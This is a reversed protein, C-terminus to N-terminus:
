VILVDMDKVAATAKNTDVQIMFIQCTDMFSM